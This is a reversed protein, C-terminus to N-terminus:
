ASMFLGVPLENGHTERLGVVRPKPLRDVPDVLVGWTTVSVLVPPETKPIVAM